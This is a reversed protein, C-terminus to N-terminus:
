QEDFAWSYLKYWPNQVDGGIEVGIAVNFRKISDIYGARLKNSGDM